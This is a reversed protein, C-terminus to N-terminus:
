EQEMCGELKQLGSRILKSMDLLVKQALETEHLYLIQSLATPGSSMDIMVDTDYKVEIRTGNRPM